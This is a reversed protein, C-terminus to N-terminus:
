KVYLLKLTVHEANWGIVVFVVREFLQAIKLSPDSEEKKQIRLVVIHATEDALQERATQLHLLNALTKWKVDLSNM